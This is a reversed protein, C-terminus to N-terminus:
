APSLGTPTLRDPRRWLSIALAFSWLAIAGHVVPWFPYIVLYADRMLPTSLTVLLALAGLAATTAGLLAPLLGTQVWLKGITWWWIGLAFLAGTSVLPLAPQAIGLVVAATGTLTGLLAGSDRVTRHLVHLQAIAPLLLLYAPGFLWDFGGYIPPIPDIIRYPAWGPVDGLPVPGPPSMYALAIALQAAGAM